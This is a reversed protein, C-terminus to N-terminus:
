RVGLTVHLERILEEVGPLDAPKFEPEKETETVVRWRAKLAQGVNEDRVDVVIEWTNQADKDLWLIHGIPADTGPKDLVVPPVNQEVQFDIEGTVLCGM